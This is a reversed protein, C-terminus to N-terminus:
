LTLPGSHTPVKKCSVVVTAHGLPLAAATPRSRCRKALDLFASSMFKKAARNVSSYAIWKGDPSFAPHREQFQGQLYPYPKHDGEMPLMWIEWRGSAGLREYAILKGDPSWSQLHFHTDNKM